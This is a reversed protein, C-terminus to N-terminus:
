FFEILYIFICFRISFFVKSDKSSETSSYVKHLFKFIWDHLIKVRHSDSSDLLFKRTMVLSETYLKRIKLNALVKWNEWFMGFVPHVDYLCLLFYGIREEGTGRPVKWFFFYYNFFLTSDNSKKRLYWVFIFCGDCYQFLICGSLFFM